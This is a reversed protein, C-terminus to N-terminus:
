FYYWISRYEEPDEGIERLRDLYELLPIDPSVYTDCTVINKEWPHFEYVRAGDPLV